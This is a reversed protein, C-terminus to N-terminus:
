GSTCITAQRHIQGDNVNMVSDFNAGPTLTSSRSLLRGSRGEIFSGGREDGIEKGNIKMLLGSADPSNSNSDNLSLLLNTGNNNNAGNVNSAQLLSTVQDIMDNSSGVGGSCDAPTTPSTFIEGSLDSDV